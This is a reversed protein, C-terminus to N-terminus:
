NMNPNEVSIEHVLLNGNADRLNVGERNQLTFRFRTSLNSPDGCIWRLRIDKEKSNVARNLQVLTGDDEIWKSDGDTTEVLKEIKPVIIVDKECGDNNGGNNQASPFDKMTITVSNTASDVSVRGISIANGEKLPAFLLVFAAIAVKDIDIRFNNNKM